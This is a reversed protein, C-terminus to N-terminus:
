EANRANMDGIAALMYFHTPSVSVPSLGGRFHSGIVRIWIAPCDALRFM